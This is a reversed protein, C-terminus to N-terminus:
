DVMHTKIYFANARCPRKAGLDQHLYKLRGLMQATQDSSKSKMHVGLISSHSAINRERKVLIETIIGFRDPTPAHSIIFLNPQLTVRNVPSFIEARLPFRVRPRYILLGASFWQSVPVGQVRLFAM